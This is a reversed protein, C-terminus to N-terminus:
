LKALSSVYLLTKNTFSDGVGFWLEQLALLGWLISLVMSLIDNNRVNFVELRTLAGVTSPLSGMLENQELDLEKLSMLYGIEPTIIGMLDQCTLKLTEVQRDSELTCTVFKPKCKEVNSGDGVFKGLMDNADDPITACVLAALM